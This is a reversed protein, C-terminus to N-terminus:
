WSLYIRQRLSADVSINELGRRQVSFACYELFCSVAWGPNCVPPWTNTIWGVRDFEIDLRWYATVNWTRRINQLSTLHNLQCEGIKRTQAYGTPIHARFSVSATPIPKWFQHSTHTLVLFHFWSFLNSYQVRRFPTAFSCKPDIGVWRIVISAEPTARVIRNVMRM